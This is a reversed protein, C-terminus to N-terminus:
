STHQPAGPTFRRRYITALLALTFGAGCGLAMFVARNPFVPKEPLNAPDVIEAVIEGGARSPQTLAVPENSVVGFHRELSDIREQLRVIRELLARDSFNMGQTAKWRPPASEVIRSLWARVLAQAKDRDPYAFRVSFVLPATPWKRPNIGAISVKLNNRMIDEVDELPLSERETKYLDLQQMLNALGERSTMQGTMRELFESVRAESEPASDDFSTVRVKGVGTSVFKPTVLFSIGLGAVAGGVALVAALKAFALGRARMRMAGKLLDFVSAWGPRSDEVLARLEEGYRERWAAPYLAVAFRALARV